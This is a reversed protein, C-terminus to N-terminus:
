YNLIGLMISKDSLQDININFDSSWKIVEAWFERTYHSSVFLHKLSEDTEGCFSCAPSSSIGIKCLFANAAICRLCSKEQGSFMPVRIMNTTLRGGLYSLTNFFEVADESYEHRPDYYFKVVDHIYKYLIHQKSIKGRQILENLRVCVPEFKRTWNCDSAM